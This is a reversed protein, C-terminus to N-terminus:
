YTHQSSYDTPISSSEMVSFSREARKIAMPTRNSEYHTPKLRNPTTQIMPKLTFQEHNVAYPKYLYENNITDVSPKGVSTYKERISKLRQLYIEENM